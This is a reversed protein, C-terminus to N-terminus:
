QARSIQVGNIHRKHCKSATSTANTVLLRSTSIMYAHPYIINVCKPADTINLCSMSSKVNPHRQNINTVNLRSTSIMYAYPCIINVCRPLDTITLCRTSNTVNPHRQNTNTVNLRITSIM